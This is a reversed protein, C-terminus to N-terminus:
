LQAMTRMWPVVHRYLRRLSICLYSLGEEGDPARLFRNRPCDGHCAFLVDCVRCYNPLRDRKDAGFRVQQPSFVLEPLSRDALSGLRLEPYVFHDCSYVSGDRELAVSRGCTPATTCLPSPLGAWAALAAEFTAVFVRGVDSRVWEDFISCLFSGYESPDVTWDTM